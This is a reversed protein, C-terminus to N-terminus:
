LLPEDVSAEDAFLDGALQRRQEPTAGAVTTVASLLADEPEAFAIGCARGLVVSGMAAPTTIRPPVLGREQLTEAAALLDRLLVRGARRGPLVVLVRRLDGRGAVDPANRLQLLQEVAEALIPREWPVITSRVRVTSGPM